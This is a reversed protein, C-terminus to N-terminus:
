LAHNLEMEHYNLLLFNTIGAWFKKYPMQIQYAHDALKIISTFNTFYLIEKSVIGEIIDRIDPSDFDILEKLSRMKALLDIIKTHLDNVELTSEMISKIINDLEVIEEFEKESDTVDDGSRDDTM